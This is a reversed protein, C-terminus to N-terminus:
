EARILDEELEEVTTDKSEIEKAIKGSRMLLIRNCVTLIESIDDSIVIIGIGQRALDKIIEHIQNKSGIDVGVTPCSRFLM